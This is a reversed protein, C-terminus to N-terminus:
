RAYSKALEEQQLLGLSCCNFKKVVTDLRQEGELDISKMNNTLFSNYLM